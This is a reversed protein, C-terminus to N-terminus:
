CGWSGRRAPTAFGWTKKGNGPDSLALSSHVTLSGDNADNRSMPYTTEPLSACGGSDKCLYRADVERLTRSGSYVFNRYHWRLHGGYPLTVQTLEGSGGPDYAFGTSMGMGTMDISALLLTTGFQANPAFPSNLAQNPASYHM